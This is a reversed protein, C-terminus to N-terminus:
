KSYIWCSIRFSPAPKCGVSILFYAVAKSALQRSTALIAKSDVFSMGSVTPGMLGPQTQTALEASIARLSMRRGKPKQRHLRKALAVLFNEASIGHHDRFSRRCADLTDPDRHVNWSNTV